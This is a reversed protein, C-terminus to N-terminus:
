GKAKKARGRAAAKPVESDMIKGIKPPKPTAPAKSVAPSKTARAPKVANVTPEIEGQALKIIQIRHWHEDANKYEPHKEDLKALTKADKASMSGILFRFDQDSLAEAISRLAALNLNKERLKSLILSAAIENIATQTMAFSSPDSALAQLIAKGNVEMTM